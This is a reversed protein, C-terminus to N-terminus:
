RELVFRPRAAYVGFVAQLTMTVLLVVLPLTWSGTAAHIAGFLVPGIAAIAYGVSQSMGSLASSTSHDRARQAMLTLSVGLSAGSFLGLPVVWFGIAGPWIMLGVVGAVGLVPLLAPTIREGHGRMVLAVALSGVLSFLQYVMVDVGAIAASRGTAISVSALWTVLVYFSTSQVGMYAAVLWAVPDRWIGTRPARGVPAATRMGRRSALWWTILAFPLVAGGTLLLSMRWGAGIDGGSLEAFPVALGSAVAGAGGLIASYVGMMLPVRLPFDRKIVAPMLVNGIALAVGILGTGIWLWVSSGPLSRVVLGVGLLGLAALVAGGLGLRRGFGHAFPSVVAWTILVITSLAGLLALPIGTDASMRDILPGVASIAPRMMVAVLCLAVIAM